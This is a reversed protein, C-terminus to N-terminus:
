VPRVKTVADISGGSKVPRARSVPPAVPGPSPSNPALLLLLLEQLLLVVALTLALLLLQLLLLPPLEPLPVDLLLLLLLQLLHLLLHLLLLARGRVSRAAGVVLGVTM